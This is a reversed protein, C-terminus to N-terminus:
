GEDVVTLSLTPTSDQDLLGVALQFHYIGARDQVDGDVDLTVKNAAIPLIFPVSLRTEGSAAIMCGAAM